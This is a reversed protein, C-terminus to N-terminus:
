RPQLLGLPTGYVHAVHQRARMALSVAAASFAIKRKCCLFWWKRDFPCSRHMCALTASAHSTWREVRRDERCQKTEGLVQAATGEGLTCRGNSCHSAM